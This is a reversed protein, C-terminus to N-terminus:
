TVISGTNCTESVVRVQRQGLVAQRVRCEHVRRAGAGLLARRPTVEGVDVDVVRGELLLREDFHRLFRVAALVYGYVGDPRHRVEEVAHVLLVVDRVDHRVRGADAVVLFMAAPPRVRM